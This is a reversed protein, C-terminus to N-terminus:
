VLGLDRGLMAAHTRNRAQLKRSLTKVHLKVTVEQIDLERAIEKNAKGETLGKLVDLERPTLAVDLPSAETEALFEIPRYIGGGLMEHVAAILMDPGLTKPLFGAAGARLARRAVDASATGSLIAVPCEAHDKMRALGALTDMGPMSYDLLVLDHPGQESEIAIAEDLSGASSVEFGGQSRLYDAITERVLGHDDALLLKHM